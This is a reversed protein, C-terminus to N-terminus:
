LTIDALTRPHPYRVLYPLAELQSLTPPNNELTKLEARLKVMVHPFTVLYCLACTLFRSTTDLGAGIILMSEEKLRLLTKEEPPIKPDTLAEFITKQATSSAKSDSRELAAVSLREMKHNLDLFTSMDPNLWRLWREPLKEMIGTVSPFFRRFHGTQLMSKIDRTMPSPLGPVDLEGFSEGYAYHSIVDTTLAGFATIATITERRHYAEYLRQMLKDVKEQIFDERRLTSQKSFFNAYYGRRRRHHDHDVTVSVATQLGTLGANYSDKNTKPLSGAYVSEYFLPDNFHLENPNM